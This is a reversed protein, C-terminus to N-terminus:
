WKKSWQWGTSEREKRRMRIYKQRKEIAKRKGGELPTCGTIIQLAATSTTRYARSIALLFPRQMASLQKILRTDEARAGWIEAAYLIMPEIARLYIHKMVEKKAGWNKGTIIFLRSALLQTKKRVNKLHEIYLLKADVTLGLYTVTGKPIITCQGMKLRPPRTDRNRRYKGTKRDGSIHLMETKEINYEIGSRNKWKECVGWVKDWKREVERM